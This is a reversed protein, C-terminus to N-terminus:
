QLASNQPHRGTEGLGMEGFATYAKGEMHPTWFLMKVKLFGNCDESM